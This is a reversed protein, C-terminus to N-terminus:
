DIQTYYTSERTWSIAYLQKQTTMVFAYIMTRDTEGTSPAM